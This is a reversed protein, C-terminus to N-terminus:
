PLFFDSLDPSVERWDDFRSRKALSLGALKVDRLLLVKIAISLEGSGHYRRVRILLQVGFCVKAFSFPREICIVFEDTNSVTLTHSLSLHRALLHLFTKSPSLLDNFCALVKIIM